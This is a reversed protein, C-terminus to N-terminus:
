FGVVEELIRSVTFLPTGTSADEPKYATTEVVLLEDERRHFVHRYLVEPSECNSCSDEARIPQQLLILVGSESLRCTCDAEVDPHVFDHARFFKNASHEVSSTRCDDTTDLTSLPIELEIAHESSAQELDDRFIRLRLSRDSTLTVELFQPHIMKGAVAATSVPKDDGDNKAMDESTQTKDGSQTTKEADSTCHDVHLVSYLGLLRDLSEGLRKETEKWTCGSNADETAQEKGANDGIRDPTPQGDSTAQDGHQGELLTNFSTTSTSNTTHHEEAEDQQLRPTSEVHDDVRDRSHLQHTAKRANTSENHKARSHTRRSSSHLHKMVTASGSSHGGNYSASGGSEERFFKGQLFASWKAYLPLVLRPGLHTKWLWECLLFNLILVVLWVFTWVEKLALAARHEWRRRARADAELLAFVTRALYAIKQSERRDALTRETTCSGHCLASQITTKMTSSKITTSGEFVNQEGGSSGGSKLVATDTPRTSKVLLDAKQWEVVRHFTELWHRLEDANGTSFKLSVDGSRLHLRNPLLGM